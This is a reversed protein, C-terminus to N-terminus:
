LNMMRRTDRAVELLTLRSHRLDPAEDEWFRLADLVRRLRGTIEPMSEEHGSAEGTYEGSWSISANFRPGFLSEAGGPILHANNSRILALFIFSATLISRLDYWLGHHRHLLSRADLIQLNCEIGVAILRQLSDAEEESLSASAENLVNHINSSHGTQLRGTNLEALSDAFDLIPGASPTGGHIMFYLFPQYLWSKMELLRNETAWSLEKSASSAKTNDDPDSRPARIASTIEYQQMVPPLHASWASVQLDFEMAMKILPRINMWTQPQQRYFSNIVQNGIRRLAVETLYYYWSEEENCLRKSHERLERDEDSMSSVQHLTNGHGVNDFDAYSPISAPSTESFGHHDTAAPSPPSPFINPHEFEAIESQPLPLEVRFESESKFCSWYLSQELRRQKRSLSSMFQWDTYPLSAGSSGTTKLHLLYSVSAHHFHNWSSLPRLTYMLYVGAFFHCQAGLVTHKLLGLRRCALIYCSEALQLDKAYLVASPVSARRTDKAVELPSAIIEPAYGCQDFPKAICGLACALLVLCSAADWRLGHEAARRGSRVLSEVDLIPNKTHVNALFVDILTPIKEDALSKLGGPVTMVDESVDSRISQSNRSMFLPEILYNPPYHGNFVPWTLVTDATTRHPPIQLYDQSSETVQNQTPTSLTSHMSMKPALTPVPAAQHSMANNISRVGSLIQDLRSVMMQTNPDLNAKEPNEM